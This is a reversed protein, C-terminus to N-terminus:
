SCCPEQPSDITCGSAALFMAEKSLSAPILTQPMEHKRKKYKKPGPIANIEMWGMSHLLHMRNM